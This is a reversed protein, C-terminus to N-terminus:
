GAVHAGLRPALTESVDNLPVTCSRVADVVCLKLQESHFPCDVGHACLCDQLASNYQRALTEFMLKRETHGTCTKCTMTISSSRM